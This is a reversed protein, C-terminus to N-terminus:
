AFWTLQQGFGCEFHQGIGEATLRVLAPALPKLLANQSCFIQHFVDDSKVSTLTIELFRFSFHKESSLANQLVPNLSIVDNDTETIAGILLAFPICGDFISHGDIIRNYLYEQLSRLTWAQKENGILGFLEHFIKPTGLNEYRSIENLM